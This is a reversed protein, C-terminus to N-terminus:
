TGSAVCASGTCNIPNLPKPTSSNKCGASLVEDAVLDIARIHPRVYHKKANTMDTNQKM